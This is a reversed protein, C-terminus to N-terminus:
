LVTISIQRRSNQRMMRHESARMGDWRASRAKLEVEREGISGIMDRKPGALM